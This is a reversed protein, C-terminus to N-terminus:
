THQQQQFTCLSVIEIPTLMKKETIKDYKQKKGDAKLGQWPLSSFVILYALQLFCTICMSIVMCAGFIFMIQLKWVKREFFVYACLRSM